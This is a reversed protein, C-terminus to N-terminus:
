QSAVSATTATEDAADVWCAITSLMDRPNIPKALHDDMGAQHYTDVQEPLVNASLAVIPIRSWAGGLARIRRTAEVGGMIPMQVDMLILDYRSTQVAEVAEAGNVALDVEVGASRLVTTILEQNPEADEVLLIRIAALDVPGQDAATEPAMAAEVLPLTFWFTAGEGPRSYVGIEGQMLAVLRACIALGLGTGGFRRSISGDAQVFRQFIQSQASQPIGIGTDTISAKLKAAGDATQERELQLTVGGEDTFKVANSLLNVLIQRLRGLDGVLAAPV